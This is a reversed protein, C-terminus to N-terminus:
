ATMKLRLIHMKPASVVQDVGANMRTDSAFVLGQDLLLGVRCTM